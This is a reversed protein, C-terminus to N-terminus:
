TPKQGYLPKSDPVASAKQSVAISLVCDLPCKEYIILETVENIRSKNLSV